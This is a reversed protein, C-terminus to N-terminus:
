LFYADHTTVISTSERRRTLTYALIAHLYRLSLPLGLAKSRSPDYTTSAPILDRWCKSPYYHIHCHLTDLESDDM